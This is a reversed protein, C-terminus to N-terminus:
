NEGNSDEYLIRDIDAPIPGFALLFIFIVKM